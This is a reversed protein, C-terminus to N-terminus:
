RVVDDGMPYVHPGVFDALGALRRVSYGNDVGTVEIGWAGDGFSVPQTAGSARVAQAMIEAWATVVETEAPGGYIPMENSILWAAVAPHDKFRAAMSRVFWAQRGVLWVDRYLDRGGRWPPDWNEGSMHGVIFTPITAMGLDAHRDLFDAYRAVMQEDVSDPSPMFDPWYFFSRTVRLGHERLVRLEARIVDPDYHRWMLPGGTRSWFNAGLWIVPEGDVTVKEFRRRLM